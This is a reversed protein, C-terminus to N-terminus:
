KLYPFLHDLLLIDGTDARRGVAYNALRFLTKLEARQLPEGGHHADLEVEVHAKPALSLERALRGGAYYSLVRATATAFRSLNGLFLSFRQQRPSRLYIYGEFNNIRTAESGLPFGGLVSNVAYYLAPSASGRRHLYAYHHPRYPFSREDYQAELVVMVRGQGGARAEVLASLDIVERGPDIPLTGLLRGTADYMELCFSTLRRPAHPDFQHVLELLHDYGPEVFAVSILSRSESSM